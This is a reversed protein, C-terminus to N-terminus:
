GLEDPEVRKQRAPRVKKPEIVRTAAVTGVQQRALRRAKLASDEKIEIPKQKKM